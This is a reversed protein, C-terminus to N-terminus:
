QSSETRAPNSASHSRACATPPSPTSCPTTSATCSTSAAPPTWVYREGTHDATFADMATRIIREAGLFLDDVFRFATAGYRANLHDLEALIGTPTRTRITLDRNM